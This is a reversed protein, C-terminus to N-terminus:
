QEQAKQPASAQIISQRAKELRDIAQKQDPQRMFDGLAQFADKSFDSHADRDLFMTNGESSQLWNAGKQVFINQSTPSNRHPSIYAITENYLSLIEPRAMFRLFTEAAEINASDKKIFLVDTPAEEYRPLNQKIIPFGFFGFSDRYDDAMHKTIFNGTLTMAAESRYLYVLVQKDNAKLGKPHFYNADLLQQWHAFVPLLRKDNFSHKGRLLELHFPRGNIRLNLYSFWSAAPWDDKIGFIFPHRGSSKITQCLEIFEQWNEPPEINLQQFLAKNYYFGWQYFSIPLAYASDQISVNSWINGFATKWENDAWLKSLNHVKGNAVYEFMRQGAFGYLIDVDRREWNAMYTHYKQNDMHSANIKINPYHQSFKTTVKLWAARQEASTVLLAMRLHTDDSASLASYATLYVFCLFLKLIRFPSRFGLLRTKDCRRLISINRYIFFLTSKDSQWHEIFLTGLNIIFRHKVTTSLTFFLYQPLTEPM